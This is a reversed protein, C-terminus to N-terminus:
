AICTSPKCEWLLEGTWSFLRAVTKTGISSTVLLEDWNDSEDLHIGKEIGCDSDLDNSLLNHRRVGPLIGWQLPSTQLVQSASDRVFVNSTLGELLRVRGASDFETLIAEPRGFNCNSNSNPNPKPKPASNLVSARARELPVRQTIWKSHKFQPNIRKIPTNPDMLVCDIPSNTINIHSLHGLVTIPSIPSPTTWLLTAVPTTTTSSTTSSTSLQMAYLIEKTSAIASQTNAIEISDVLRNIHFPLDTTISNLPLVTYAGFPHSQLFDRPVDLTSPFITM